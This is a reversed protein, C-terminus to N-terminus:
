HRQRNDHELADLMARISAAAKMGHGHLDQNLGKAHEKHREAQAQLQRKEHLLERKSNESAANQKELVEIRATADGLSAKYTHLQSEAAANQAQLATCRQELVGQSAKHEDQVRAHESRQEAMQRQLAAQAESGKRREAETSQLEARLQALAAKLRSSEAAEAAAAQQMSALEIGLAQGREAAAKKEQLLEAATAALQRHLTEAEQNSAATTTEAAQKAADVEKLSCQLIDNAATSAALDQQLRGHAAQVQEAELAAKKSSDLQRNLEAAAASWKAEAANVQSRLDTTLLAQQHRESAHAAEARRLAQLDQQSQLLEKELRAVQATLQREADSPGDDEIIDMLSDHPHSGYGRSGVLATGSPLGNRGALAAALCQRNARKSPLTPSRSSAGPGSSWGRKQRWNVQAQQMQLQQSRALASAKAAAPQTTLDPALELCWADACFQPQGAAKAHKSYGGMIVLKSSGYPTLSLAARGLPHPVASDPLIQTWSIPQGQADIQLLFVSDQQSSDEFSGGFLLMGMSVAVATHSSRAAPQPGPISPHQAWSVSSADFVALDGKPRQRSDRGGYCFCCTGVAVMSFYARPGPTPGAVELKEVQMRDTWLICSAAMTPHDSVMVSLGKHTTAGGHIILANPYLPHQVTAHAWRKLQGVDGRIKPIRWLNSPPDYIVPGQLDGPPLTGGGIVWISGKADELSTSSTESLVVPIGPM